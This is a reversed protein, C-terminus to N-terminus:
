RPGPGAVTDNTFRLSDRKSSRGHSLILGLMEEAQLLRHLQVLKALRFDGITITLDLFLQRKGHGTRRVVSSEERLLCPQPCHTPIQRGPSGTDCSLHRDSGCQLCRRKCRESPRKPLRCRCSGISSAGLLEGRPHAETRPVLYGTAFLKTSFGLGNGVAGGNSESNLLWCDTGTSSRM